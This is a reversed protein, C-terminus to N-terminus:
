TTTSTAKPIPITSHRMASPSGGNSVDVGDRSVELIYGPLPIQNDYPGEYVKVWITIVGTDRKIPFQPGEAIDFPPLPVPSPTATPKPPAPPPPAPTPPPALVPVTDLPGKADVLDASVWVPQNAMCCVQWWASDPTRALIM